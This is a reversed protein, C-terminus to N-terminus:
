RGRTPVSATLDAGVTPRLPDNTTVELRGSLEGVADPALGLEFELEHGPALLTGVQSAVLEPQLLAFGVGQMGVADLRLATSGVNSLRVAVSPEDEAVVDGFAYISPSLEAAPAIGVGRLEVFFAEGDEAPGVWVADGFPGDTRPEFRVAVILDEGGALELAASDPDDLAFAGGVDLRPAALRVPEFGLNRITVEQVEPPSGVAVDAFTLRSPAAAVGEPSPEPLGGSDPAGEAGCAGMAVLAGVWRGQRALFKWVPFSRPVLM